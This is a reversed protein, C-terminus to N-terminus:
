FNSSPSIHVLWISRLAGGLWREQNKQHFTVPLKNQLHPTDSSAIRPWEAQHDFTLVWSVPGPGETSGLVAPESWCHQPNKM